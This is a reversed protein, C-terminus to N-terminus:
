NWNGNVPDKWSVACLLANAAEVFLIEADRPARTKTHPWAISDFSSPIIAVGGFAEGDIGSTLEIPDAFSDGDSSSRRLFSRGNSTWTVRVKSGAVAVRSSPDAAAALTTPNAFTVGLDLSRTHGLQGDENWIIHISDEAAIQPSTSPAESRSLNTPSSFSAGADNSTTFVIEATPDTWVMALRNRWAAIRPETGTSIPQESFSQGDRSMLYLIRDTAGRDEMVLHIRRAADIALDANPSGGSREFRTPAGFKTGGDDSVILSVEALAPTPGSTFLIAVRDGKAAARLAFISEGRPATAIVTGTPGDGFTRGHDTSRRLRIEREGERWLLFVQDGDAALESLTSVTGPSNSVSVVRAFLPSSLAVFLATVLARRFM